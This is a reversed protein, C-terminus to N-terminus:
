PHYPTGANAKWPQTLDALSVDLTEVSVEFLAGGACTLTLVGAPLVAPLVTPAGGDGDGDGAPDPADLGNAAAAAGDGTEADVPAERPVFSLALLAIVADGKGPAVGRARLGQAQDVTLAARVREAPPRPGAARARTAAEWRFRNMLIVVRRKRPLWLVDGVRAVSDQALASLVALDELGAARLRIPREAFPADEFRADPGSKTPESM